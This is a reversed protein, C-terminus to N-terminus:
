ICTIVMAEDILAVSVPPDWIVFPDIAVFRPPVGRGRVGSVVLILMEISDFVARRRFRFM